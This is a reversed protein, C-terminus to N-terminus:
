HSLRGLEETLEVNVSSPPAPRRVDDQSFDTKLLFSAMTANYRGRLANETIEKEIVSAARRLLRAKRGKGGMAATLERRDMGVAVALGALTRAEEPMALYESAREELEKYLM